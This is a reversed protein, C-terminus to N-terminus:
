GLMDAWINRGWSEAYSGELASPGASLGGSGAV